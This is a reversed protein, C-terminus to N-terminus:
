DWVAVISSATTAAMVRRVMIPLWGVPYNAFTVPTGPNGQDSALIVTVNGTVGIYLAKAYSNAGTGGVGGNTLDLTDSKVVAIANRAPWQAHEATIPYRDRAQDYSDAM